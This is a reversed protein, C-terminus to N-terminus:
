ATRRAKTFHSLMSQALQARSIPKVLVDCFLLEDIGSPEGSLGGTIAIMPMDPARERLRRALQIGDMGPLLIDIIAGAFDHADFESLAAEGSAFARHAIGISDCVAEWLETNAPDDEVVLIM